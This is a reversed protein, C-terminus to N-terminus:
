SGIQDSHRHRGYRSVLADDSDPSLAVIEMAVLVRDNDIPLEESVEFSWAIDSFQDDHAIHELVLDAIAADRVTFHAVVIEDFSVAAEHMSESLTCLTVLVQDELSNPILRRGVSEIHASCNNGASSLHVIDPFSDRICM